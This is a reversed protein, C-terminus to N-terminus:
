RECYADIRRRLLERAGELDGKGLMEAMEFNQMISRLFGRRDEQNKIKEKAMSRAYEQLEVFLFDEKRLAKKVLKKLYRAMEPSRGHTSISILVGKEEITAPIIFDAVRDARNVLKDHKRALDEIRDNLGRESTAIFVLDYEALGPVGKRLDKSILRLRQSKIKKLGRTFDMSVVDVWAGAKLLKNVRREAVEGGGFIVTKKNKLNLIVPFM